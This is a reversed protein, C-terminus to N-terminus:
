KRSGCAAHKDANRAVCRFRRTSRTLCIIVAESGEANREVGVRDKPRALAAVSFGGPTGPDRAREDGATVHGAGGFRELLIQFGARRREHRADTRYRCVHELLDVRGVADRREGM